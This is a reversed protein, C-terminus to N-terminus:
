ISSMFAEEQIEVGPIQPEGKKDRDLAERRVKVEDIVWYEKPVLEPNIIKAVKKKSMRLGSGNDTRVTKPTEPLTELKKIATEPKLTGKEVRAAIKAEDEAKKNEKAIMYTKAKGNLIIVADKCKDIYSDYKEKAEAIIAKAPAVFKDKEQEIFKQLTKVGKIKDAVIDLEADDTVKFETVEKDMGETKAKVIAVVDQVIKEKTM